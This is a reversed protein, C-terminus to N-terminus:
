DESSINFGSKFNKFGGADKDAESLIADEASIGWDLNLDPDAWYVSRASDPNYPATTKYQVCTGRELTVFGHLFGPPVWIQKHNAASIEVSESHGYTPSGERVDVVIDTIRGSSCRVLKGQAYPPAQLHLGRVTGALASYSENDQVFVTDLGVEQFLTESNYSEMFYGRNDGFRKPQLLLLSSISLKEVNM